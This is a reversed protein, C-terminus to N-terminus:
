STCVGRATLRQRPASQPESPTESWAREVEAVLVELEDAVPQPGAVAPGVRDAAAEVIEVIEIVEMRPVEAARPAAVAPTVRRLIGADRQGTTDGEDSEVIIHEYELLEPM